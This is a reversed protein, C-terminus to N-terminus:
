AVFLDLTRQLHRGIEGALEDKDTVAVGNRVFGLRGERAELALAELLQRRSHRGDLLPLLFTVVTDLMVSEHWPTFTDRGSEAYAVARPDVKPKETNGRARGVPQLSFRGMGRVVLIEFLELLHQEATPPLTKLCAKTTALLTDMDLTRPWVKAMETLAIRAVPNPAILTQGNGDTFVPSGAAEDQCILRAAMHLCRLRQPNLRYTVPRSPEAHMLLTQRFMRERLFDLYQELLVQSHGCEKLLADRVELPFVNDIFMGCPKADALYTLGWQEALAIFDGFYCPANCHELYEHLLYHEDTDRLISGYNAMATGLVGKPNSWQKLFDIMGRGYALRDQASGTCLGARLLMADRLLERGKWGPYTNYSVYAIGNPALNEKCIRLIAQRVHEPVWSYVGHCVIYDFTGLEASSLTSLDAQRLELNDLGLREIIRQGEEVQVSSLDIGLASATSHRSVFPILNGGSACGLELVRATAVAPADRGFLHAVAALNEPSSFRFSYSHYPDEDYTQQLQQVLNAM